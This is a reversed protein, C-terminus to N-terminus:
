QEEEQALTLEAEQAQQQAELDQPGLSHVEQAEQIQQELELHPEALAEQLQSHEVPAEQTHEQEQIQLDEM